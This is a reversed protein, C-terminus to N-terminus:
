RGWKGLDILSHSIRGGLVAAVDGSFKRDLARAPYQFAYGGDRDVPQFWSPPNVWMPLTRERASTPTTEVPYNINHVLGPTPKEIAIEAALRAADASAAELSAATLEDLESLGNRHGEYYATAVALSFAASPKGWASGEVAGAFTGSSLLIPMSCNFGVNIGSCVMDPQDNALLHGLALNVCDTPTGDVSWSPGPLGEVQAVTLPRHRSIARGIWSQETAPAVISVRGVKCLQEAFARLFQSQVGDDNTLLFHPEDTM